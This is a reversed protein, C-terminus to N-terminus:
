EELKQTLKRTAYTIKKTGGASMQGSKELNTAEQQMTAALEEEGMDLLRTAAARLKQTAAAINGAQAEEMARTQLRYASVREVINMVLADVQTAQAPDGTFGLLIDARATQHYLNNAPVEYDLEAQAMRYRGPQRPPITMEVLISRGQGKELDGLFVQVDRDSLARPGLKNIQPKVQWVNRPVVGTVLRLILNANQVVAAQAAVVSQRFMGAVKNVDDLYEVGGANGSAAVIDELLKQNWDDGLGFAMVPVGLQGSQVGLQVCQQDDGYTQGDTLLLMRGVRGGSQNKGLEDLGAKMGASIATGGRDRIGDIQRHLENKNAAPQAPVIVRAHEDYLVISVIDNPGMQDVAIKAAAKMNNLKAGAMSGSQDLVLALNLPMQVAAMVETPLAEILVYALQPAGTAPFNPKNTRVVLNVEGPM